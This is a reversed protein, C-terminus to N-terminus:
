SEYGCLCDGYEGGLGSCAFAAAATAEANAGFGADAYSDAEYEQHQEGEAEEQDECPPFLLSPWRWGVRGLQRSVQNSCIHQRMLQTSRPM